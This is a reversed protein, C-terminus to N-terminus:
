HFKNPDLMKRLINKLSSAMHGSSGLDSSASSLGSGSDASESPESRMRHRRTDVEVLEEGGRMRDSLENAGTVEPEEANVESLLRSQGGHGTSDDQSSKRKYDRDSKATEQKQHSTVSIPDVSNTEGNNQALHALLQENNQVSQAPVKGNNQASKPTTQRHITPLQNPPPLPPPDPPRVIPKVPVPRDSSDNIGARPRKRKKSVTSYVSDPTRPM